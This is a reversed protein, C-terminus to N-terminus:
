NRKTYIRHHVSKLKKKMREKKRGVPIYVFCHIV